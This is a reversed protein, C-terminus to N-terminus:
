YGEDHQITESHLVHQKMCFPCRIFRKFITFGNLPALGGPRYSTDSHIDDITWTFETGCSCTINQEVPLKLIEM